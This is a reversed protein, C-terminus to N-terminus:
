RLYDEFSPKSRTKKRSGKEKLETEIEDSNEETEIKEESEKTKPKHKKTEVGTIKELERINDTLPDLIKSFSERQSSMEKSIKKIDEGYGGIKKIIAFQLNEMSNEIKVLRKDLDSVKEEIENKFKTLVSLEKKLNKTKEEIISSAIDNITEIDTSQPPLYEQYDYGPTPSEPYQAQSEPYQTQPRQPYQYEQYEYQAPQQYEEYEPEPYQPIQQPSQPTPIQASSISPQMGEYDSVPKTTKPFAETEQVNEPVPEARPAPSIESEIESKIEHQTLAENIEKPSVGQERLSQMIQSTSLGQRRMESIKGLVVM